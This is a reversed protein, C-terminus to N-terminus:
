FWSRVRTSTLGSARCIRSASFFTNSTPSPWTMQSFCSSPTMRMSCTLCGGPILHPILGSIHGAERARDLISALAEVVFDFLLPSLPDGQRVGRGNRFFNGVEGNVTIATQGGSVLGIARHVWGPEFGKRLLVERLFAWSVRDYAKEFDLKLFVGRLKKSKTEHIIEQLALIGEHIHRGRIFASQTPSITRHAIPSLRVAYAKAVFKFIVNILAIPRFQRIDNAGPVKPILSLVGMNLRAIDVRGLAFGNAIALILPKALQWFEKFFFVPFGDPGPATDTKMSALVTDMEEGSFTLM